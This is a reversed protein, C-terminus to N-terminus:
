RRYHQQITATSAGPLEPNYRNLVGANYEQNSLSVIKNRNHSLNLSTNWTFNRGQIPTANLSLEIGRNNMKGVNAVMWGYPYYSTSVPYSWIMDKTTKNYYEITGNIRGGLFSFDIGLNLMTTTEWKLDPNVNRAANLSKYSTEKGTEPDTYVFRAGGAYYFRSTYIDFGM